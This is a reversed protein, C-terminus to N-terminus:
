LKVDTHVEWTGCQYTYSLLTTEKAINTITQPKVNDAVGDTAGGDMHLSKDIGGVNKNHLACRLASTFKYPKGLRNRIYQVLMVLKIRVKSPYGNCGKGKCKCKFEWEQFNKFYQWDSPKMYPSECYSKYIIRLLKDTDEFYTEVNKNLFIVNFQRVANKHGPGVIGDINKTYLGIKKFYTQRETLSLMKYQEKSVNEIPKEPQKPEEQQIIPEQPKEEIIPEKESIDPTPVENPEEKVIPEEKPIEIENIIPEDDKEVIEHRERNLLIDIIYELLDLLFQKM